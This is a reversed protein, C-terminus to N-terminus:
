LHAPLHIRDGIEREKDLEDFVAAQRRQGALEAHRRRRDGRAQCAHFRAEAHPQQIAGRPPDADRLLAFQIQRMARPQQELELLEVAHHRARATGFPKNRTL